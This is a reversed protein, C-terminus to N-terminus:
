ETKTLDKGLGNLIQRLRRKLALLSLVDKKRLFSAPHCLWLNVGLSRQALRGVAVVLKPRIIENVLKNLNGRCNNVVVDDLPYDCFVLNTYGVQYQGCELVLEDLIRGSPGVFPLGLTIESLGPREGVFLVQPNEPGRYVIKSKFEGCHRVCLTCSEFLQKCFMEFQTLQAQKVM